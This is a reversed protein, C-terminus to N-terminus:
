KCDVSTQDVSATAEGNSNFTVHITQHILVNNGPRQGVLRYNNIFTSTSQGNVFSGNFREMSVGTANYLYGTSQGRGQLGMPQFHAFGSIRQNNVNSVVLIHLQGSFEVVEGAGNNACEVFEELTFDVIFHDVPASPATQFSFFLLGSFLVIGNFFISKKM